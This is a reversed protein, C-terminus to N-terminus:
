EGEQQEEPAEEPAEEPTEEAKKKTTKKEKVPLFGAKKLTEVAHEPADVVVGTAECKLKM